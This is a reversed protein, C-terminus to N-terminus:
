WLDEKINMPSYAINDLRPILIMLSYTNHLHTLKEVITNNTRSHLGYFQSLSVKLFFPNLSMTGFPPLPDPGFGLIQQMHFQFMLPTPLWVGIQGLKLVSKFVFPSKYLIYCCCAM